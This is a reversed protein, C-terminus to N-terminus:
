AFYQNSRKSYTKLSLFWKEADSVDTFLRLVGQEASEVIADRFESSLSNNDRMIVAAKINFMSFKQLMFVLLENKPDFFDKPLAESDLLVFQTNNEVLATIVDYVNRETKLKNKTDKFHVYTIDKNNVVMYELIGDSKGESINAKINENETVDNENPINSIAKRLEEIWVLENEYTRIINDKIFSWLTTELETRNPSFNSDQRYRQEMILQMKVQNYYEDILANLEKSNLQMSWALRIIFPKKIETPEIPSLVWEKLAALGESTIRYIKKAPLGEQHEVVNTVMGKNHLESLAKYIQNNNGSWYMFTSDQIIKKLDYGTMPKYSLIGLIAYNISM